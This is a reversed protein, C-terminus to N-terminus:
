LRDIDKQIKNKTNSDIIKYDSLIQGSQSILFSQPLNKISYKKAIVAYKDYLLNTEKFTISRDRLIALVKERSPEELLINNQSLNDVHIIFFSIEPNNNKLEEILPLEKLCPGCWTAFFNLFIPKDKKLEESLYFPKDDFDYVFFSDVKQQPYSASLLFLISIILYRMQFNKMYIKEM